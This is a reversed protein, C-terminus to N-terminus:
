VGAAASETDAHDNMWGHLLRAVEDPESEASALLSPRGDGGTTLARQTPLPPLARPSGDGVLEGDGPLPLEVFTTRRLARSLMFAVLLLLAVGVATPILPNSLLGAKAAVATTTTAAFPASTVAITDGRSPQLGVAASVLQQISAIPPLNKATSDVAVAVSLNTVQGAPIETKENTTDVGYQSNVNNQKYKNTPTTTTTTGGTTTTSLAGAAAAAGPGTYTQTSKSQALPVVNQKNYTTKDLTHTSPDVTAAVQVYAKAPGLMTDLMAQARAALQDGYQQGANTNGGLTGNPGTLLNGNTDTVTVDAPALNQVGSAVLNVVAPVQSNTFASTTTLLVSASAPQQDSAFLQQQPLVLNVKANSIGSISELATALEGELAQQYDVQQQFSSTTLSEKDIIGWSANGGTVVGAAGVSVREAALKNRPVSITSGDASLRYPVGDSGLKATVASADKSSLGSYLVDYPTQGVWRLLGYAGIVGIVALVGIIVLQAPSFTERLGALRAKIADVPM